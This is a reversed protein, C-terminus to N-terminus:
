KIPYKEKLEKLFKTLGKDTMTALLLVMTSKNFNQQETIQYVEKIKDFRTVRAM